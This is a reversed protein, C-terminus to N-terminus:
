TLREGSALAMLLTRATAPAESRKSRWATANRVTATLTTLVRAPTRQVPVAHLLMELAARGAPLAEPHWLAGEAFETFVILAVPLPNIGPRGNLQALPLPTQESCGPKRMQLTRTFPHVYGEPDLLAFEDSYYTAGARVLEAVLTSKGAHSFGPLLLARDQWAVVGAHLFVYDPAFEAVHITLRSSLQQLSFDLPEADSLLRNDALLQYRTENEIRRLAFTSAEAAPACSETSRFPVYERMRTLLAESCASLRFPVGWATLDLRPDGTPLPTQHSVASETQYLTM